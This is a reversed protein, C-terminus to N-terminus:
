TEAMAKVFAEGVAMGSLAAGEVRGGGFGDGALALPSPKSQLYYEAPYARTTRSYLWRHFSAEKVENGFWGQGADCLESIVKEPNAEWNERSYEPGAHLTVASGDGGFVGKMANDAMWSLPEGSLWIGGPEPIQSEGGLRAMVVLCPDYAVKELDDVVARPIRDRVPELMSLTQPMPATVLVGRAHLREGETSELMWGEEQAEIQQIRVGTRVNLGTALHKGIQSMGQVGCYRAEGDEKRTGDFAAFGRAWVRVIGDAEWQAVLSRFAESRATFYQAGHDFGGQDARRRSMRGGVGRGKDILQVRLGNAELHRAALLGSM